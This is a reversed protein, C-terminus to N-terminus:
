RRTRLLSGFSRTEFSSAGVDGACVCRGEDKSVAVALRSNGVQVGKLSRDRTYGPDNPRRLILAM